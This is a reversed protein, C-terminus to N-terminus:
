GVRRGREGEVKTRKQLANEVHDKGTVVSNAIFTRYSEYKEKSVEKWDSFFGRIFYKM